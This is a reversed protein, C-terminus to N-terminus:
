NEPNKTSTGTDQLSSDYFRRVGCMEELSYHQRRNQAISPEIKM